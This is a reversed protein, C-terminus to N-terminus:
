AVGPVYDCDLIYRNSTLPVGKNAPSATEYVEAEAVYSGPKLLATQTETLEWTVVDGVRDDAFVVVIPDGIFRVLRGRVSEGTALFGTPFDLEVVYPFGIRAPVLRVEAMM